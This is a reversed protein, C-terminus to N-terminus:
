ITTRKEVWRALLPLMSITRIGEARRIPNRQVPGAILVKSSLTSIQRNGKLTMDREVKRMLHRIKLYPPIKELSYLLMVNIFSEKLQKKQKVANFFSFSRLMGLGLAALDGKKDKKKGKKEFSFSFSFSILIFRNCKDKWEMWNWWM